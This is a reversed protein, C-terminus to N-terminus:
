LNRINWTWHRLLTRIQPRTNGWIRAANGLRRLWREYQREWKAEGRMYLYFGLGFINDHKRRHLSGYTKPGGPDADSDTLWLYPDLDKWWWAFITLFVKNEITKYSRYYKKNTVFPAFTGTNRIKTKPGEPDTIWIYSDSSGSRMRIRVLIDRILFM